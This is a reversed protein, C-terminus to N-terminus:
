DPPKAGIGGIADPSIKLDCSEGNVTPEVGVNNSPEFFAGKFIRATVAPNCEYSTPYLVM